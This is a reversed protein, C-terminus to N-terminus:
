ARLCVCVFSCVVVCMVVVRLCVCAILCVVVCDFLSVVVYICMCVLLWGLM